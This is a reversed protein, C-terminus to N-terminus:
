PAPDNFEGSSVVDEAEYNYYVFPTSAVRSAPVQDSFAQLIPELVQAPRCPSEKGPSNSSHGHPVQGTNGNHVKQGM